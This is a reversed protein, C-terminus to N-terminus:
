RRQNAITFDIRDGTKIRHKHCFGANVEVVYQAPESSAYSWEKLPATNAHITVIRNDANAFIMDLPIYTNRMWFSQTEEEEFLFLMGANEPLSERYMLGRARAADTDAIEIEIASLTDNGSESIFLLEGQKKFPVDFSETQRLTDTNEKERRLLALAVAAVALVVIITSTAILTNNRKKKTKM